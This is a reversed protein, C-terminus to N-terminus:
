FTALSSYLYALGIKDDLKQFINLAQNYYDIAKDYAATGEFLRGLSNLAHAYQLSDEKVLALDKAKEHYDYSNLYDGKYLYAVGLYNYTEPLLQDDKYLDVLEISSELFYISSDPYMKRYEWGLQNFAEIKETSQGGEVVKKAQAIVNPSQGNAKVCFSLFLIILIYISRNLKM